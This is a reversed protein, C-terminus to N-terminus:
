PRSIKIKGIFFSGKNQGVVHEGNPLYYIPISHGWWLQRSICWDKINRMWSFYMGTMKEPYFRITKNEVAAIAEKALDKMSVFWQKSLRPEVVAKSRESLGVQHTHPMTKVLAGAKKLENVVAKRAKDRDMGQYTGGQKNLRGDPDFINILALGHRKGIQYDNMDHAPTIKLVGSGLDPDVYDDFVIPIKREVIPVIAHKGKLRKGRPDSPHLCLATDGFITEPRTTAVVLPEAEGEVGYAIYYLTGMRQEYHVEEDALATQRKPDWYIMRMDRYIYGKKYLDIFASTVAQSRVRDMTFYQRSWDCSIGLYKLQNCIIDEHEKKWAWAASLFAAKGLSAKSQRSQALREIVKAETAISAHDSGPIWCVEKGEMRAKRALVDQITNNLLHGMHLIGTVNPPPQLIAYGKKTTKANARFYGAADWKKRWKKAIHAHDPYTQDKSM